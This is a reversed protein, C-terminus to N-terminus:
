RAAAAAGTTYRRIAAFDPVDGVGGGKAPAAEYHGISSNTMKAKEGKKVTNKQRNLDGLCTTGYLCCKTKSKRIEKKKKEQFVVSRRLGFDDSHRKQKEIDDNRKNSM